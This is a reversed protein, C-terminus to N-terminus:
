QAKMIIQTKNNNIIYKNDTELYALKSRSIAQGVPLYLTKNNSERSVFRSVSKRFQEFYEASRHCFKTGGTLNAYLIKVCYGIIYVCM